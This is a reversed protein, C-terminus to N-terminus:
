EVGGESQTEGEVKGLGMFTLEVEQVMSSVEDKFSYRSLLVDEFTMGDLTFSVGSTTFILSELSLVYTNIDYKPFTCKLSLTYPKIGSIYMGTSGDVTFYSSIGSAHTVNYSLVEFYLDNLEIQHHRRSYNDM